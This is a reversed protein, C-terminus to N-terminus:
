KRKSANNFAMRGRDTHDSAASSAAEMCANMDCRIKAVNVALARAISTSRVEARPRGGNGIPVQPIQLGIPEPPGMARDPHSSVLKVSSM